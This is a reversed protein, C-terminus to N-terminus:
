RHRARRCALGLVCQGQAAAVVAMRRWYDIELADESDNTLQHTCMDPVQEPAGKVFVNNEGSCCIEESRIMGAM